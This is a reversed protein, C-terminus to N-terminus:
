GIEAALTDIWFKEPLDNEGANDVIVPSFIFHQPVCSVCVITMMAIRNAELEKREDDLQQRSIKSQRGEEFEESDFELLAATVMRFCRGAGQCGPVWEVLVRLGKALHARPNAHLRLAGVLTNALVPRHKDTWTRMADVLETASTPQGPVKCNPAPELMQDKLVELRASNTKCGAKHAKWAAAQCEKSCYVAAKCKSCKFLSTHSKDLFCNHCQTHTYHDRSKTGPVNKEAANVVEVIRKAYGAWPRIGADELLALEYPSLGFGDYDIIRAARERAPDGASQARYGAVRLRVEAILDPIRADAPALERALHLDTLSEEFRGLELKAAGAHYLAAALSASDLPRPSERILQEARAADAATEKWM